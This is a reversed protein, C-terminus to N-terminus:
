RFQPIQPSPIQYSLHPSTLIDPDIVHISDRLLKQLHFREHIGLTEGTNQPRRRREDVGPKVPGVMMM